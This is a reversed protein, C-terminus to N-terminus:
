RGADSGGGEASPVCAPYPQAAGAGADPGAPRLVVGAAAAVTREAYDAPKRRSASRLRVVDVVDADSWGRALCARALVFEYGSPSSDGILPELEMWLSLLPQVEAIRAPPAPPSWSHAGGNVLRPVGLQRKLTGGLWSREVVAGEDWHVLHAFYGAPANWSGPVRLLRGPPQFPDLQGGLRRELEAQLRRGVVSAEVVDQAPVRWYVHFGRGSCVVAWPLPLLTLAHALRAPSAGVKYVDADVVVLHHRGVRVPQRFTFVLGAKRAAWFRRNLWAWTVASPTYSRIGPEAGTSWCPVTRFLLRGTDALAHLFRLHRVSWEVASLRSPQVFAVAGGRKEPSSSCM